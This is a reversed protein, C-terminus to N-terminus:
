ILTKHNALFDLWITNKPKIVKALLNAYLKVKRVKIEANVENIIDNEIITILDKVILKM